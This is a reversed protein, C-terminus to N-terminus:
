HYAKGNNSEGKSVESFVVVESDGDTKRGTTEIQDDEFAPMEIEALLIGQLNWIFVWDGSKGLGFIPVGEPQPSEKYVEFVLFGKAPVISGQPIEFEKAPKKADDNMKFGSLDIDVDSSNYLEIFDRTDDWPFSQVDQNNSFVENIYLGITNTVPQRAEGTNPANKTFQAFIMWEDAGDTTRGYSEFEKLSPLAISDIVNWNEDALVINEDPGKSLGWAPYKETDGHLEDKDCEILLLGKSEITTNAPFTFAEERGGAEWLKAGSLNITSDTGNYLEIFDLDDIEKQPSWTYVENIVLTGQEPTVPDDEKCSSSMIAIAILALGILNIKKM